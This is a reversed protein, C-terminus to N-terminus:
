VQSGIPVSLSRVVSGLCPSWFTRLLTIPSARCRSRRFSRYHRLRYFCLYIPSNPRQESGHCLSHLHFATHSQSSLPLIESLGQM